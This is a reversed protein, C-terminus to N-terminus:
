FSRGRHQDTRHQPPFTAKGARQHLSLGASSDVVRARWFRMFGISVDISLVALRRPAYL